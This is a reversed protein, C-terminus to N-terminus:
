EGATEGKEWAMSQRGVDRTEAESADRGYTEQGAGVAKSCGSCQITWIWLGKGQLFLSIYYLIMLAAFTVLEVQPM